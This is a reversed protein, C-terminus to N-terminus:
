SIKLIQSQFIFKEFFGMKSFRSKKKLEYSNKLVWFNLYSKFSISEPCATKVLIDSFFELKKTNIKIKQFFNKIYLKQFNRIFNVLIKM